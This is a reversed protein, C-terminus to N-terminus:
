HMGETELNGVSMRHEPKANKVSGAGLNMKM